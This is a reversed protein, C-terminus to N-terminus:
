IDNLIILEYEYSIRIIKNLWKMKNKKYFILGKIFEFQWYKSYFYYMLVNLFCIIM